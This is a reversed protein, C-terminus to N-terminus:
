SIRRFALLGAVLVVVVGIGILLRGLGPGSGTSHASTAAGPESAQEYVIPAIVTGDARKTVGEVHDVITFGAPLEFDPPPSRETLERDIRIRYRISRWEGTAPDRYRAITAHPARAGSPLDRWDEYLVESVMRDPGLLERYAIVERGALDFEVLRGTVTARVRRGNEGLDSPVTEIEIAREILPRLAAIPSVDVEGAEQLDEPFRNTRMAMSSRADITWSEAETGLRSEILSEGLGDVILFANRRMWRRSVDFRIVQADRGEREMVAEGGCGPPLSFMEWTLPSAAALQVAFFGFFVAVGRILRNSRAVPRSPGHYMTRMSM